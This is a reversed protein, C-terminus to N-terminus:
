GSSSVDVTANDGDESRIGWAKLEVANDPHVVGLSLGPVGAEKMLKEALQSIEPTLVKGKGGFSNVVVM